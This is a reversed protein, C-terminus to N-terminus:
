WARAPPLATTPVSCPRFRVRVCAYEAAEAYDSFARFGATPIGYRLMLEQRVGKSSEIRAAAQHSRFDAVGRCPVCRGRGCGAGGRSGGGYTGRARPPRSTACASRRPKRSDGRVGGAARHRCQGSCLFDKEVQASRSLADVIAHERGGGGIVLVKAIDFRENEAATGRVAAPNGFRVPGGHAAVPRTHQLRRGM